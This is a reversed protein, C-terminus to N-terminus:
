QLRREGRYQPRQATLSVDRLPVESIRASREEGFQFATSGAKCQVLKVLDALPQLQTWQRQQREGQAQFGALRRDFEDVM